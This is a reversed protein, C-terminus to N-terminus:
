EKAPREPVDLGAKRLGELLRTRVAHDSFPTRMIGRAFDPTLRLVQTAEARAEEEYGLLGYTAALFQHVVGYDPNLALSARYDVIAQEYDHAVFHASARAHAAAFSYPDLRMAIDATKIAEDTEGGLGLMIALTTYGSAYNTDLVTAQRAATIAEGLKGRWALVWALRDYARPLSQDLAVAKKAAQAAPELTFNHDTWGYYWALFQAHALEAYAAAFAPDLAIAREFMEQGRENAEATRRDTLVRGQLYLDYAETNGTLPRDARTVTANGLEVHLATIIQETIEDQVAFIDTLERDYREAWLNGNTTADILKATVRVQDGARRVGGELVYRVGFARAVEAVDVAQGKFRFTSNRAIVLLGDFRSLETILDETVGDAFYEQEPDGSLNTFPLVAISPGDPLKLPPDDGLATEASQEPALGPALQWVAVGAVVLVVAAVAAIVGIRASLGAFPKIPAASMDTVVRYTRVPKAINKVDHAGVDEFAAEIKGETQLFITESLCIGGPVALGELRAAINVGDGYITGDDKAIVDGLNLGIRFHMQRHEAHQRNRWALDHQIDIAAILAEVPSAFEALLNDGPSDVVRGDHRSIHDAFVQRYKTLTEVTAAEDDGMLRSYGAVDASLIAALKRKGEAMYGTGELM